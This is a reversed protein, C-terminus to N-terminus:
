LLCVSVLSLVPYGLLMPVHNGRSTFPFRSNQAVKHAWSVFSFQFALYLGENGFGGYLSYDWIHCIKNIWYLIGLSTFAEVFIQLEPFKSLLKKLIYINLLFVFKLLTLLLNIWAMTACKKKISCSSLFRSISFSDNISPSCLHTACKMSLM